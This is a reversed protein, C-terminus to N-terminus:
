MSSTILDDVGRSSPPSTQLLTTAISPGTSTARLRLRDIDPLIVKRRKYGHRVADIIKDVNGRDIQDRLVWTM